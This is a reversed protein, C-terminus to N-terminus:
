RMTGIMDLCKSLNRQNTISFVDQVNNQVQVGVDSNPDAMGVNSGEYQSPDTDLSTTKYSKDSMNNSEYNVNYQVSGNSTECPSFSFSGLIFKYRQVCIDEFYVKSNLCSPLALEERCSFWNTGVGNESKM